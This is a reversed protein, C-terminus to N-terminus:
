GKALAALKKLDTAPDALVDADVAAHAAVLDSIPKKFRPQNIAIAGVLYGERLQFAIFAGDEMKGRVVESEGNGEGTIQINLDYQDSWVWPQEEYHDNGGLMVHAAAVAQDIAHRWHETRVFREHRVSEFRAVDGAAHIDPDSTRTYRDVIIGDDVRLGAAQALETAPEAGIGAILVDAELVTSGDLSIVARGDKAAVGTIKVDTLVHVGKKRHYDAIFRSVSPSVSRAMVRDAM